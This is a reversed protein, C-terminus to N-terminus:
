ICARSTFICPIWRFRYFVHLICPILSFARVIMPLVMYLVRLYCSIPELAHYIPLYASISTMECPILSFAHIERIFAGLTRVDVPV